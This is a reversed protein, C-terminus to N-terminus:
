QKIENPKTNQKSWLNATRKFDQSSINIMHGTPITLATNKALPDARANDKISLHVPIWM